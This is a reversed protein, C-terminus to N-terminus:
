PWWGANQVARRIPPKASPAYIATRLVEDRVVLVTRTSPDYRAREGDICAPELEYGQAWAEEIRPTLDIREARSLYRDRAHESVSFPLTM